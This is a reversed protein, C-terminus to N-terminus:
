AEVDVPVNVGTDLFVHEESVTESATTTVLFVQADVVAAATAAETRFAM